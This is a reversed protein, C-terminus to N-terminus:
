ESWWEGGVISRVWDWTEIKKEVTVLIDEGTWALGGDLVRWDEEKSEGEKERSIDELLFGEGVEAGGDAGGLGGDGGVGM